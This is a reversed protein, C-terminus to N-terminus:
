EKLLNEAVNLQLINPFTVNAFKTSNVLIKSINKKIQKPIDNEPLKQIITENIVCMKYLENNKQLWNLANIIKERRVTFIKKLDENTPRQIGILIIKITDYNALHPLVDGLSDPNQPYTIVNGVMKLQGDNVDTSGKTHIKYIRCKIRARAILAEEVCTL